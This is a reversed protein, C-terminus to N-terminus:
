VILLLTTILATAQLIQVHSRRTARARRVSSRSPARRNQQTRDRRRRKRDKERDKKRKLELAPDGSDPKRAHQNGISRKILAKKHSETRVSGSANTNGLPVGHVVANCNGLLAVSTKINPGSGLNNGMMRKRTAAKAIRRSDALAAILHKGKLIKHCDDITWCRANSKGKVMLEFAQHLVLHQPLVVAMHAHMIMHDEEVLPIKNLWETHHGGVRAFSTTISTLNRPPGAVKL